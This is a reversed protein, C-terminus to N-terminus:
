VPIDWGETALSKVLKNGTTMEKKYMEVVRLTASALLLNWGSGM